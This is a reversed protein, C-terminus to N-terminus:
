SAREPLYVRGAEINASAVSMQSVKDGEPKISVVNIKGKLEQALSTGAGTDEILVRRAKQFKALELVKAKLTPYDVRRRWVDILYWRRDKTLWWTTCVSWDNDPGGKMATDWSQFLYLREAQPPLETYRRIWHRKVM